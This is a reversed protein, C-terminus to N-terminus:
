EPRPISAPSCTDRAFWSTWYFHHAPGDDQVFRHELTAYGESTSGNPLSLRLRCVAINHDRSAFRCRLRSVLYVPTPQGDIPTGEENYTPPRYDPANVRDYVACAVAVDGATPLSCAPPMERYREPQRFDMAARVGCTPGHPLSERRSNVCGSILAPAILLWLLPFRPVRSVV